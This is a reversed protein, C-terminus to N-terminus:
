GGAKEYDSDITPAGSSTIWIPIGKRGCANIIKVAGRMLRAARDADGAAIARHLNTVRSRLTMDEGREFASSSFQKYAM